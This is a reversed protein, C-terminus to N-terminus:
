AIPHFLNFFNELLRRIKPRRRWEPYTIADARAFDDALLAKLRQAFPISEIVLNSEYNFDLSRPDLNASGIVSIRDDMVAAKTHRFPPRREFITVGAVLLPRYLAQSAIRITPHNNKRPVLIKVEVGRAAAQCLALLLAQSPVLYPTVLILQRTARNALAFFLNTAASALQLQPSSNVLRAPLEGCPTAPPYFAAGSITEIPTDTMYFWDRLFTYQLDLVIPGRVMFHLDSVGAGRNEGNAPLYIDHFNVGGTFALTGDIILLKRHLRLNLQFQRKPFHSQSFPVLELNPIKRYRRFFGRLTAHASGFADYLVRVQVGAKAQRCLGTLLRRGVYDDELIYTTLHIHHRAERITAFIAELAQDAPALPEIANGGLLPHEPAIQDLIRHFAPDATTERDIREEERRAYAEALPSHGKESDQHQRFVADSYLKSWRKQPVTNIGFLVYAILGILPFTFVFFIWLLSSRADRPRKLIHFLVWVNGIFILASLLGILRGTDAGNWAAMMLVANM